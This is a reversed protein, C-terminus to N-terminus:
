GDGGWRRHPPSVVGRKVCRMAGGVTRSGKGVRIVQHRTGAQGGGAEGDQHRGGGRWRHGLGELGSGDDGIRCLRRQGQGAGLRGDGRGLVLGIGADDLVAGVDGIQVAPDDVDALGDGDGTGARQGQEIGLEQGAVVGGGARNLEDGAQGHGGITLPDLPQAVGEVGVGEVEVDRGADGADVDGELLQGLGVARVPAHQHGRRHDIKLPLLGNEIRGAIEAALNLDGRADDQGGAPFIARGQARGRLVAVHRGKRRGVEVGQDVAGDEGAGVIAAHVDVGAAVADVQVDQGVLGLAQGGRVVLELQEFVHDLLGVAQEAGAVEVVVLEQEGQGILHAADAQLMM